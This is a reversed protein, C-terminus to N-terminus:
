PSRAAWRRARGASGSAGCASRSRSASRSGRHRDLGVVFQVGGVALDLAHAALAAIAVPRGEFQRAGAVVFDRALGPRRGVLGIREVHALGAIAPSATPSRPSSSSPLRRRRRRRRRRGRRSPSPSPSLRRDDAPRQRRPSDPRRAPAHGRGSRRPPRRGHRDPRALRTLRRMVPRAVALGDMGVALAVAIAVAAAASAAAASAPAALVAIARRAVVRRTLVIRADRGPADRGPRVLVVALALLVARRLRIAAIQVIRGRVM